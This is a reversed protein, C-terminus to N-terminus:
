PTIEGKWRSKPPPAYDYPLQIEDKWRVKGEPRILVEIQAKYNGEMYIDVERVFLRGNSERYEVALGSEGRPAVRAELSERNGLGAFANTGGTTVLRIDTVTGGTVNRLTVVVRGQEEPISQLGVVFVGLIVGVIVWCQGHRPMGM